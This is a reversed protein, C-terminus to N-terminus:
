ISWGIAALRTIACSCTRSGWRNAASWKSKGTVNRCTPIAMTLLTALSLDASYSVVGIVNENVVPCRDGTYRQPPIVDVSSWGGAGRTAVYEEGATPSGPAVETSLYSMRNGDRAAVNGVFGGGPLFPAKWLSGTDPQFSTKGVPTVLEYARCDPLAASFGGRFQENPCAAQAAAETTFTQDPGVVAGLGNTVVARYHYTTGPALGRAAAWVAHSSFGVGASGEPSPVSVGHPGEGEAYPRTDYEFRYSTAIGGPNVLAGLRAESAGVEVASEKDLAPATPPRFMWVRGKEGDTVYVQGSAKDVAVMSLLQSQNSGFDGAGVDALQVGTSGYEVLHACPPRYVGCADAGNVVVALVDGNADLALSRVGESKFENLFAGTPAFEEVRNNGDDAVWVDGASDVAVGTPEKLAHAGSGTFTNLTVCVVPSGSCSPSPGYELVENDQANPVYVDGASDTAFQVADETIATLEFRPIFAPVPFSSVPAGTNPDFTDIESSAADAVYLDDNTPNVAVGYNLGEAFPSPPSLLIGSSDFKEIHGIKRTHSEFFGSTFVNGNSQDVAM